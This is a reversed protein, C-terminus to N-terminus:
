DLNYERIMVIIKAKQSLKIPYDSALPSAVYFHYLSSNDHTKVSNCLSLTDFARIFHM